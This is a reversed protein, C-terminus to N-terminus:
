VTALRTELQQQRQKRPARRDLITRPPATSDRVILHPHVMVDTKGTQPIDLMGLVDKVMKETNMRITTLSPITYLSPREDNYGIISVDDPVRVGQQAFWKLVAWAGADSVTMIATPRDEESVNWVGPMAEFAADYSSEWFRTGCSVVRGKIGLKPCEQEFTRRRAVVPRAAEPENVILTVRRHGLRTLHDLALNTGEVDDTWVSANILPSVMEVTAFRYGRDKAIHLLIDGQQLPIQVFVLRQEEPGRELAHKFEEITIGPHVFHLDLRNGRIKCEAVFQEMFQRLIDSDYQPLFLGVRYNKTDSHDIKRVISGKSKRRVLIGENALDGLARRVTIQSVALATTLAQETWFQQGNEFHDQIASHLARRVQAHLPM